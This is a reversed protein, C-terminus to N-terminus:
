PWARARRTGGDPAGPSSGKVVVVCSRLDAVVDAVRMAIWRRPMSPTTVGRSMCGGHEVEGADDLLGLLKEVRHLAQVQGVRITVGGLGGEELVLESEGGGLMGEVLDVGLEGDRGGIGGLASLGVGAEVVGALQM